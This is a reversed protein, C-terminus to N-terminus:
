LTLRINSNSNSFPRRVAGSPFTLAHVRKSDHQLFRFADRQAADIQGQGPVVVHHDIHGPAADAGTRFFQQPAPAHRSKRAHAIRKNWAVFRDAANGRHAGTDRAFGVPARAIQHKHRARAAKPRHAPQEAPSGFAQNYAAALDHRQGLRQAFLAHQQGKGARGKMRECGVARVAFQRQGIEDDAM